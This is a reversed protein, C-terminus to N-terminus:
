NKSANMLMNVADLTSKQEPSLLSSLMTLMSNMNNNDNPSSKNDEYHTNNNPSDTVTDKDTQSNQHEYGNSYRDDANSDQHNDDSNFYNHNDDSNVESTSVNDSQTNGGGFMDMSFMSMLNSLIDNQSNSTGDSPSGMMQSLSSYVDFMNKMKIFNLIMDIIEREKKYCVNRISTLLGEMDISNNQISFASVTKQQTFAKFTDILDVFKLILDMSIQTHSDLYPFAARIIDLTHTINADGSSYNMDYFGDNSDM